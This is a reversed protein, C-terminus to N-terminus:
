FIKRCDNAITIYSPQLAIRTVIFLAMFKTATVGENKSIPDGNPITSHQKSKSHLITLMLFFHSPWKICFPVYM